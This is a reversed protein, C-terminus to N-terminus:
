YYYTLRIEVKWNNKTNKLKDLSLIECKLDPWRALMGSLFQALTQVETNKISMTASRTIRGAKKVEGRVNLNFNSPTLSNEQAFKNITTTFDFEGSNEKEDVEYFLRKPQILVLKTILDQTVQYEDKEVEWAKVSSPFFVFGALIAWIGAAAPILVYYFNPNKLYKSM